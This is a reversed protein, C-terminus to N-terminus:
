SFGYKHIHEARFVKSPVVFEEGCDDMWAGLVKLRQGQPAQVGLLARTKISPIPQRGNGWAALVDHMAEVWRPVELTLIHEVNHSKEDLNSDEESIWIKASGYELSQMIESTSVSARDRRAAEVLRGKLTDIISRNCEVGFGPALYHKARYGHSGNFFIDQTESTVTFVFEARCRNRAEKEGNRWKFNIHTMEDVVRQIIEEWAFERQLLRMRDVTIKGQRFSWENCKGSRM